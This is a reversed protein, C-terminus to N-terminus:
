KGMTDMENHSLKVQLGQAQLRLLRLRFRGSFRLCTCTVPTKSRSVLIFVVGVHRLLQILLFSFATVLLYQPLRHSSSLPHFFEPVSLASPPLKVLELKRQLIVALHFFLPLPM